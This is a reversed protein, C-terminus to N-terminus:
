FAGKPNQFIQEPAFVSLCGLDVACVSVAARLVFRSISPSHSRAFKIGIRERDTRFKHLGVRECWGTRAMFCYGGHPNGVEVAEGSDAAIHKEGSEEIGAETGVDQVFGGGGKIEVGGELNFLDVAASDGCGADDHEFVATGGFGGWGELVVRVLLVLVAGFVALVRFGLVEVFGTVRMAVGMGMLGVIMMVTAGERRDAAEDLGRVQGIGYLLGGDAGEFKEAGTFGFDVVYVDFFDVEVFDSSDVRDDIDDAGGGTDVREVDTVPVARGDVDASAHDVAGMAAEGDGRGGGGVKEAAEGGVGRMDLVLEGCRGSGGDEAGEVGGEAGLGSHENLLDAVSCARAVGFVEGVDQTEGDSFREGFARTSWEERLRLTPVVIGADGGYGDEFGGEVVEGGLDEGVDRLAGESESGEVDHGGGDLHLFAAEAGKEGDEGVVGVNGGEFVEEEALGAGEADANVVFAAGAEVASVGGDGSLVTVDADLDARAVGFDVVGGGLEFVATGGSCFVVDGNFLDLLGSDGCILVCRLLM